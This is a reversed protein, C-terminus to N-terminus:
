PKEPLKLAAEPDALVDPHVQRTFRLWDPPMDALTRARGGVGNEVTNGPLDGMQMWPRWSTLASYAVQADVQTGTGSLVEGVPASWVTSEKYFLSPVTAAAPFVRGYEEHRVYLQGRHVHAPAISKSMLVSGAPAFEGETTGKAPAFDSKEELSVAFRTVAPGFRYAPVQVRRKTFPMVVSTLLEDSDLDTYHTIELTVVSFLDDSVREFRNLTAAVFGCLPEVVGRSVAFRRARVWGFTLGGDLSGRMKMLATLLDPKRGPDLDAASAAGAPLLSAAALGACFGRRSVLAATGPLGPSLSGCAGAGGSGHLGDGVPREKM